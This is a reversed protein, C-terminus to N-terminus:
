KLEVHSHLPLSLDTIHLSHTAGQMLSVHFLLKSLYFSLSHSPIFLFLSLIFLSLYFSHHFCLFISPYKLFLSFSFSLSIFANCYVLQRYTRLEMYKNIWEVILLLSSRMPIPSQTFNNYYNNKLFYLYIYKLSVNRGPDVM